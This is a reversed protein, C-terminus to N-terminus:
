IAEFQKLIIEECRHVRPHPPDRLSVLIASPPPFSLAVSRSLINQAFLRFRVEPEAV